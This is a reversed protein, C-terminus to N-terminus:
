HPWLDHHSDRRCVPQCTHIWAETKLLKLTKWESSYDLSWIKRKDRPCIPYLFYSNTDKLILNPHSKHGISPFAFQLPLLFSFLLNSDMETMQVCRKHRPSSRASTTCLSFISIKLLMYNTESHFHYWKANKFAQKEEQEYTNKYASKCPYETTPWQNM